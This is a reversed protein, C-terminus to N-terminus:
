HLPVLKKTRLSAGYWPGPEYKVNIKEAEKFKHGPFILDIIYGLEALTHQLHNSAHSQQRLSSSGFVHLGDFIGLKSPRFIGKKLSKLIVKSLKLYHM